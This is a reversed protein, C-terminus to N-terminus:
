RRRNYSADSVIGTHGDIELDHNLVTPEEEENQSSNKTLLYGIGMGFLIAIIVIIIIESLSFFM